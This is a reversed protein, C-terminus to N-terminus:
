KRTNSKIALHYLLRVCKKKRSELTLFYFNGRTDMWECTLYKERKKAYKKAKGRLLIEKKQMKGDKVTERICLGSGKWRYSVYGYCSDAYANKYSGFPRKKLIEEAHLSKEKEGAQMPKEVAHVNATGLLICSLCVAMLQMITRM